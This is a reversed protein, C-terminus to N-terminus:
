GKTAGDTMGGILFRQAWVFVLMIPVCTLWLWAFATGWDTSFQGIARYIGTSITNGSLPGLIILPPVLDTWFFLGLLVALTAIAPRMLPLIVLFFIRVTGAGDMRAAEDLERPITAMFPVLIFLSLPLAIFVNYLVLGPLTFMLGVASLIQSGPLIAVQPPILIGAVIAGYIVASTRGRGRALPYAAMAAVLISVFTSLIAVIITTVYANVISVGPDAFVRSFNTTTLRGLSLGLPAELIDATPRFANVIVLYLPFAIIFAAGYLLGTSAAQPLILRWSPIHRM